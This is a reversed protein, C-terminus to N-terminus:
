GVLRALLEDKRRRSVDIITGDTLEIQGGEFRLYRRVHALNILHSNHVRFFNYNALLEEFEGLNKSVLVSTHDTLFFQTYNRDSECRIITAVDVFLLGEFTPLAIKSRAPHQNKLNDFFIQYQQAQQQQTQRVRAKEVARKLEELGIPKLLYDLASFQIAQIAYHNYATTFIVSFTVNPLAALLDFGNLFPMEVDLFITDPQHQLIADIGDTASTCVAVVDINPLYGLMLRLTEVSNPEDDILVVRLSM